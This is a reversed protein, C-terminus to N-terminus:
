LEHVLSLRDRLLALDVHHECHAWRCGGWRISLSSMWPISTSSSAHEVLEVVGVHFAEILHRLDLRPLRSAAVVVAGRAAADNRPPRM